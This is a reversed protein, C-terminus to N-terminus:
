YEFFRYLFFFFSLSFINRQINVTGSKFSPVNVLNMEANQLDLICSVHFPCTFPM